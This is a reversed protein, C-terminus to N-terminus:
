NGIEAKLACVCFNICNETTFLQICLKSILSTLLSFFLLLAGRDCYQGTFHKDCHCTYSWGARAALCKGHRCRHGACGPAASSARTEALKAATREFSCNLHTWLFCFSNMLSLVLRSKDSPQERLHELQEDELACGPTVKHLRHANGFDLPKHNIHVARLCGSFSTLNRLHWNTFAAVGVESPVGGVFLASTLRLFDKDGANIISRARGGDVRLTFNQREVLLEATHERGDALQEFSYMTSVPYNGVDFSVQEIV